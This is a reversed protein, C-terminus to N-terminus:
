LANIRKKLKQQENKNAEAIDIAAHLVTHNNREGRLVKYVLDESVKNQAAIAKIDNVSLKEKIKNLQFKTM